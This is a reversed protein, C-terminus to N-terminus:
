PSNLPSHTMAKSKKIKQGMKQLIQERKPSKQVRNKVYKSINGEKPGKLRFTCIVDIGGFIERAEIDTHSGQKTFSIAMSKEQDELFLCLIM